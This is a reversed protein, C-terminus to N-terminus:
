NDGYTGLMKKIETEIDETSMTNPFLALTENTDTARVIIGNRNREFWVPDLPRSFSEGEKLSFIFNIEM